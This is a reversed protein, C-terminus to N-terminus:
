PEGKRTARQKINEEECKVEQPNGELEETCYKVEQTSRRTSINEMVVPKLFLFTLSLLIYSLLVGTMSLRQAISWIYSSNYGKM